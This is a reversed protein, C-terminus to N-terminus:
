GAGASLQVSAIGAVRLQELVTTLDQVRASPKVIVVVAAEPNDERLSRALGPLADFTFEQGQVRLKGAELNWLATGGPVPAQPPEAGAASQAAGPQRDSVPGSSHLPLISYPTLSSSLMFFILLQFMIDALPTLAFAKRQRPAPLGLRSTQM